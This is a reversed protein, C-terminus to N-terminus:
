CPGRPFDRIDSVPCRHDSLWVVRLCDGGQGREFAFSRRAVRKLPYLSVALIVSWLLLPLFPAFTEVCFWVIALLLLMLRVYVQM